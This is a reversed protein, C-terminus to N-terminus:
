WGGSALLEAVGGADGRGAAWHLESNGRLGGNVGGAAAASVSVAAAAIRQAAQQTMQDDGIGRGKWGPIKYVVDSTTDFPPRAGSPCCPCPGPRGHGHSAAGVTIYTPPPHPTRSAAPLQRQVPNLAYTLSPLVYVVCSTLRGCGKIHDDHDLHLGRM